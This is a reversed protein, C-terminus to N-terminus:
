RRPEGSPKQTPAAHPYCEGAGLPVYTFPPTTADTYVLELGGGRGKAGGGAVARDVAEAFAAPHWSSAVVADIMQPVLRSSINSRLPHGEADDFLECNCNAELIVPTLTRNDWVTDYGFLTFAGRRGELYPRLSVLAQLALEKQRHRLVAYTFPAEGDASAPDPTPPAAAALATANTAAARAKAREAAIDAIYAALEAPSRRALHQAAESNAVLSGGDAAAPPPRRRQLVQM